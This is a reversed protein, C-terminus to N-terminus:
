ESALDSSSYATEQVSVSSTGRTSNVYRTNVWMGPWNSCIIWTMGTTNTHRRQLASWSRKNTSQVSVSKQTNSQGQPYLHCLCSMFSTLARSNHLLRHPQGLSWTGLVTYFDEQNRHIYLMVSSSFKRLEHGSRIRCQVPPIFAQMCLVWCLVLLSQVKFQEVRIVWCEVLMFLDSWPPVSAVHTLGWCLVLM